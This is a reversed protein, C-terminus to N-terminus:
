VASKLWRMFTKLAPKKSGPKTVLYYALTQDKIEGVVVLEGNRVEQQVLAAAEVHLGYGQRAASLALEENPVYTINMAEPKLGFSKLWALAEPWDQEIVWPMASMEEKSLELRGKLLAPAGVIVSHAATLHESIFGPWHGNGFRIALDIQDRRLDVVRKEPYLSIPVEPHAAWFAGLRPMLWQAAFVPTMTVRLPADADVARLEAVGQAITQFGSAVAQALKEGEPTLTMGRGERYILDHGLDTELARVQQAIAAHTVNLARAAASFSQLRAAAEFARLATLSPFAKWDLNL